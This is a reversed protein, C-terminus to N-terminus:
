AMAQHPTSRLEEGDFTAKIKNWDWSKRKWPKPGDFPSHWTYKKKERAYTLGYGELEKGIEKRFKKTNDKKAKRIEFTDAPHNKFETPTGITVWLWVGLREITIHPLHNIKNYVEAMLDALNTDAGDGVTWKDMNQSLFSYAENVLKSMELAFTLDLKTVDPHYKRMAKRYATILGTVADMDEKLELISIAESFKM